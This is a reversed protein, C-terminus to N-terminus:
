LKLKLKLRLRLGGTGRYKYLAFPMTERKAKRLKEILMIPRRGSAARILFTRFSKASQTRLWVKFTACVSSCVKTRVTYVGHPTCANSIDNTPSTLNHYYPKCSLLFGKRSNACRVPRHCLIDGLPEPYKDSSTRDVFAWATARRSLMADDIGVCCSASCM